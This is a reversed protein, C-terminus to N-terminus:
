RMEQVWEDLVRPIYGLPGEVDEVAAGYRVLIEAAWYPTPLSCVVCMVQRAFDMLMFGRSPDFHPSVVYRDNHGAVGVPMVYPTPGLPMYKVTWGKEELTGATRCQKGKSM